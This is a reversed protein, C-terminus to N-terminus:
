RDGAPGSSGSAEGSGSGSSGGRGKGSSSGSGASSAGDSVVARVGEARLQFTLFRFEGQGGVRPEATLGVFEVPRVGLGAIPDPLVPEDESLIQVTPSAESRRAPAPDSVMVMWILLGTSEDRRQRAARGRARDQESQRETAPEVEGIALAGSPFVDGFSVPFRYNRALAM